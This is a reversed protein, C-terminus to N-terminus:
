RRQAEASLDDVRRGLEDLRQKMEARMQRTRENNALAAGVGVALAGLAIAVGLAKTLADDDKHEAM